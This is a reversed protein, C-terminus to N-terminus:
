NVGGEFKQSLILTTNETLVTDLSVPGASTRVQFGDFSVSLGELVQRVTKGSEQFSEVVREGIKGVKIEIM